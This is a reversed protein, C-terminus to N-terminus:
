CSGVSHFISPSCVAESNVAIRPRSFLIGRSSRWGGSSATPGPRRIESCGTLRSRAGHMVRGHERSGHKARRSCCSASPLPPSIGASHLHTFRPHSPSRSAHSTQSAQVLLLKGARLGLLLPATATGVDLIEDLLPHSLRELTANMLDLVFFNNTQPGGHEGWLYRTTEVIWRDNWHFVRYVSPQNEAFLSSPHRSKSKVEPPPAPPPPIAPPRYAQTKVLDSVRDPPHPLDGPSLLRRSVAACLFLSACALAGVVTAGRAPRMEDQGLSTRSSVTVRSGPRLSARYWPASAGPCCARSTALAVQGGRHLRASPTKPPDTRSRAMRECTLAATAPDLGGDQRQVVGWTEAHCRSLSERPVATVRTESPTM